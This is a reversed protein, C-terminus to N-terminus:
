VSVFGPFGVRFLGYIRPHFFIARKKPGSTKRRLKIGKQGFPETYTYSYENRRLYVYNMEFKLWDISVLELITAKM